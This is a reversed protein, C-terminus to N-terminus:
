GGALAHKLDRWLIGTPNLQPAHKPLFIRTLKGRRGSEYDKMKQSNHYSVNDMIVAVNRADGVSERVKDPFRILTDFNTSDVIAIYFWGDGLVGIMRVAKKSWSMPLTERGGVPLWGYGNWGGVLCSAEDLALVLFGRVNLGALLAGTMEKFGKQEKKSASKRPAPRSKRYSFRARRMLRRVTDLICPVNLRERMLERVAKSQWRKRKYGFDAPSGSLWGRVTEVVTQNVMPARGPPKRDALDYMGRERGRALWGRVTDQKRRMEEAIRAVTKFEKRKICAPLVTKEKDDKLGKMREDMESITWEPMFGEGRQIREKGKATPRTYKPPTDRNSIGNADM